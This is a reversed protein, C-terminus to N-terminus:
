VGKQEDAWQRACQPINTVEALVDELWRINAAWAEAFSREGADIDDQHMFEFGSVREYEAAIHRQLPSLHKAYVTM